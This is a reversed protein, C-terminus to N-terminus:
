IILCAKAQAVDHSWTVTEVRGGSHGCERRDFVICTCRITLHDLPKIRAYIGQTTWKENVRIEDDGFRDRPGFTTPMRGSPM